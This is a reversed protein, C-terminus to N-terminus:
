EYRLAEIPSLASARRAPYYGFVIGVVVSIGFALIVSSITARAALINFYSMGFTIALGLIVGLVGGTFTLMTAEALFQHRIDKNRAGIAKRLGIEKTRETVTTLMMNMIGIGGVILSIGAIAALLITFTSTVSSATAVVETQNLVKFDALTPDSIHHRSLLMNTIQQQLPIMSKENVAEANIVSVYQNGSLYRQATTIPVFIRDDTTGYGNSGKARLVGIVKFEIDKIRIVQGVPNEGEAFLEKSAEPGLVAVQKISTVQQDTIFSGNEIGVNRVRFYDSTVGSVDPKSNMGKSIVLYEATAEPAVAKALPLGEIAKGDSQTLVKASANSTSVQAGATRKAIPKVIVLNAGLSKIEARIADKAGQGIALMAIVSSIGIVIGLMTLGSRMKNGTLVAYTEALIDSTKM